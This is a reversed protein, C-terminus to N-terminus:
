SFGIYDTVIPCLQIGSPWIFICPRQQVSSWGRLIFPGPPNNVIEGNERQVTVSLHDVLPESLWYSEPFRLSVSLINTEVATPGLYARTYFLNLGATAMWPSNNPP